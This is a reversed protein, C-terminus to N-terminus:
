VRLRRLIKGALGLVLLVAGLGGCCLSTSLVQLPQTVSLDRIYAEPTGAFLAHTTVLQNGEWTGEITLLQGPGYGVFTREIRVDTHEEEAKIKQANGLSTEAPIRLTLPKGNALLLDMKSIVDRERIPRDSAPTRTSVPTGNKSRATERREVYFLVLGHNEESADINPPLQVTILIDTGSALTALETPSPRPYGSVRVGSAINKPIMVVGLVAAALCTLTGAGMFFAIWKNRREQRIGLISRLIFM